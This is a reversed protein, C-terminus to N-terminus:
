IILQVESYKNRFAALTNSDLPFLRGCCPFDLVSQVTTGNVNISAVGTSALILVRPKEPYGGPYQLLKTVSQYFTKIFHSQEGGGSGSIFLNFSKVEKHTISIKQKVKKKGM